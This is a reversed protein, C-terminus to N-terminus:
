IGSTSSKTANPVSRKLQAQEAYIQTVVQLGDVNLDGAPHWMRSTTYFEWGRRAHEPKLKAENPIVGM